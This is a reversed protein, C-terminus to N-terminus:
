GVLDPSLRMEGRGEILGLTRLKSLGNNFGGGNSEYGAEKALVEKRVAKPFFKRLAMLSKGPASNSGVENIWWDFLAKGRPLPDYRGLARLGMDTVDMDGRGDIFGKGRLSSLYNNFGGGNSSYGALIGLRSKNMRGHQALAILIKREGSPMPTGEKNYGRLAERKLVSVVPGQVTAAKRQLEEKASRVPRDPVTRAPPDRFDDMRQVWNTMEQASAHMSKIVVDLDSIVTRLVNVVEDTVIPVHVVPPPTPEPVQELEVRHQEEQDIVLKELEQIKARLYKPDEAKSKEVASSFRKKLSEFDIKAANTPTLLHKGVEPTKSSDFTERFHMHVRMFLELWGPSWVWADGPPLSSLSSLVEAAQKKDAHYDIWDEIARRDQPSTMRMTILVEIQTLVNKNIIAPRQSILTVGLGRARGRRVIKNIAGLLPEGGKEPNQPAWADAEDLVLHLPNRNKLYLREAFDTMFRRQAGGSFLGLDIVMPSRNEAVFDAVSEGMGEDLPLDAHEGGLIMVPLGPKKGDASFRLGWWVGIPDIAIVPLNNKVMEEVMVTATNTKGMGRKAVIAFTQTVAEDPLVLGDAMSIPM